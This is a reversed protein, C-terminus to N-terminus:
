ATDHNQNSGDACTHVTSTVQMTNIHLSEGDVNIDCSPDIYFRCNDDVDTTIFLTCTLAKKASCGGEGDKTNPTCDQARFQEYLRICECFTMDTSKGQMKRINNHLRYVMYSFMLRSQFHQNANYGIAILNQRFNNRCTGCPLVFELGEFWTRYTQQDAETPNSPYNMSICHISLWLAPGWIASVFGNEPNNAM